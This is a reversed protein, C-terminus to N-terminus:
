GVALVWLVIILPGLLGVLMGGLRFDKQDVYGTSYAIANPPTSVPLFLATSTSLGIIMAVELKSEPLIAMGLPILVTSTATNSMVNSFIMTVYGLIFLLAVRSVGLSQIKGAYLDLLGVQQLALGLSLGGAVLILTDWGMARIDGGTLVRSMPLSVLPIAAVAAASLQHIPNTLWLLVTVLLVVIVITRKASQSPDVTQVAISPPLPEAAKFFYLVLGKWAILTLALAVPLGFLMWHVFNIPNGANTLAALAVANPPSGIVTGMGGTTAAIPIGLVLGKTTPSGKELSTLVPTLAAIVMAATATNSILMSATM